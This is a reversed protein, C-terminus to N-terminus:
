ATDGKELREREVVAWQVALARTDFRRGVLLEGNTWFQAEVGREGHTRPECRFHALDSERVFEFLVQGPHSELPPMPKRGLAYFPDDAM